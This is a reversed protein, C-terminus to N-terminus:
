ARALKQQDALSVMAALNKETVGDDHLLMVTRATRQERQFKVEADPAICTSLLAKALDDLQGRLLAQKEPDAYERWAAIDESSGLSFSARVSAELESPQTAAGLRGPLAALAAVIRDVLEMDAKFRAPTASRAKQIQERIARQSPVAFSVRSAIDHRVYQGLRYPSPDPPFLDILLAGLLFGAALLSSGLGGAQRFRCWYGTRLSHRSKRVELRRQRTKRKLPWM